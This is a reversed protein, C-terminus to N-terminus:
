ALLGPAATLKCATAGRRAELRRHRRPRHHRGRERPADDLNDGDLMVGADRMICPILGDAGSKPALELGEEVQEISHRAHLPVSPTRSTHNRM